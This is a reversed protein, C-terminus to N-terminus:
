ARRQLSPPDQCSEMAIQILRERRERQSLVPLPVGRDFIDRLRSAPGFSSQASWVLLLLIVRQRSSTNSIYWISTSTSADIPIFLNQSLHTSFYRTSSCMLHSFSPIGFVLAFSGLAAQSFLAFVCKWFSSSLNRNLDHHLDRPRQIVAQHTCGPPSASWPLRLVCLVALFPGFRALRVM